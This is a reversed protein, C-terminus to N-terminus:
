SDLSKRVTAVEEANPRDSSGEGPFHKAIVLMKNQSGAHLGSIYASGMQSVWYPDGGFVSSGLDGNASPNPSDVVDLSPGFYMNVGLASLEQGM